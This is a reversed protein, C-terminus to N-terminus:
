LCWAMEQLLHEVQDSPGFSVAAQQPNDVIYCLHQGAGVHLRDEVEEVDSLVNQVGDDM